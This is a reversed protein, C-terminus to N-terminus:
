SAGAMANIMTGYVQQKVQNAAELVMQGTAVDGVTMNIITNGSVGSKQFGGSQYPSVYSGGSAGKSYFSSASAKSANGIQSALTIVRSISSVYASEVQGIGAIEQSIRNLQRQHDEAAFRETLANREQQRRLAQDELAESQQYRQQAAQIAAQTNAQEQQRQADLQRRREDFSQQIKAREEAIGNLIEAQREEFAKRQEEQAIVFDEVRRKEETSADETDRKLQKQGESQAKLFAVVDNERVADNLSDRIDERLRAIAKGTDEAIRSSEKNFDNTAKLQEAFYSSQLKSLAQNGKAQAAALDNALETPLNAIEAQISAIKQKGASAIAKLENQHAIEEAKEDQAANKRDLALFANARSEQRVQNDILDTRQQELQAIRQAAQEAAAISRQAEVERTQALEAEAAATDNAVLAGESLGENITALEARYDALAGESAAIQERIAPIPGVTQAVGLALLGYESLIAQSGAALTYQQEELLAQEDAILRELEAKRTEAQDTTLGSAVQQNFERQANISATYAAAQENLGKTLETTAFSVAIAAGATALMAPNLTGFAEVADGIGGALELAPASVGASGLAGRVDAIQGGISGGSGVSPVNALANGTSKAKSEVNALARLQDQLHKEGTALSKNLDKQASDLSNVQKATDALGKGLKPAESGVNKVASQIDKLGKIAKNKAQEDLQVSIIKKEENDAM